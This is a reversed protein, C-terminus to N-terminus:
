LLPNTTRYYLRVIAILTSPVAGPPVAFTVAYCHADQVHQTVRIWTRVSEQFQAAYLVPPGPCSGAEVPNM